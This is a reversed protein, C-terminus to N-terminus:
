KMCKSLYDINKARKICPMRRQLEAIHRDLDNILNEKLSGTWLSLDTEDVHILERLPKTLSAFCRNATQQDDAVLFCVRAKQMAKLMKPLKEKQRKFLARLFEEKIKKAENSQTDIQAQSACLQKTMSQTTHIQTIKFGSKLLIKEEVPYPPLDFDKDSLNVDTLILRARKSITFDLYRKEFLLPIGKYLCVKIHENEWIECLKSAITEDGKKHMRSLDYHMFHNKEAPMKIIKKREFDVEYAQDDVIKIIHRISHMDELLGTIKETIEGSWLREKGGNSMYFHENGAITLNLDDSLVGGGFIEYMVKAHAVKAASDDDKQSALAGYFLLAMIVCYRLM